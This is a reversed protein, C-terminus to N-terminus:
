EGYPSVKYRNLIAKYFEPLNEFFETSGQQDTRRKVTLEKRDSNKWVYAACYQALIKLDNPIPSYGGKYGIEINHNGEAWLGKKSYIDWPASNYAQSIPQRTLCGTSPDLTVHATSSYGVAVTLDIGNEKVTPLPSAAVARQNPFLYSQGRRGSHLEGTYTRQDFNQPIGPLGCEGRIMDEAATKFMTLTPDKDSRAAADDGLFSKFEELTIIEQAM